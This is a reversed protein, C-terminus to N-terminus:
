NSSEKFVPIKECGMVMNVGTFTAINLVSIM